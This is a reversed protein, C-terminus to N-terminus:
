AQATDNQFAGDVIQTQQETLRLQASKLQKHCEVCETTLRDVEDRNIHYLQTEERCYRQVEPWQHVVAQVSASQAQTDKSAAAFKATLDTFAARSTKLEDHM